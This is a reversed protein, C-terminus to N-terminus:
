NEFFNSTESEWFVYGEGDYSGLIILQVNKCIEIIQDLSINHNNTKKCDYKTLVCLSHWFANSYFFCKKLKELTISKNKLLYYTENNLCIGCSEYLDNKDTPLRIVDDFILSFNSNKSTKNIVLHCLEDDISPIQSGLYNKGLIKIKKEPNQLLISGEDFKYLRDLNADPPLLTFFIGKEFDLIKLIEKSLANLNNLNKFIFDFTINYRLLHKNLQNM